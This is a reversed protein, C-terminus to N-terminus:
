ATKWFRETMRGAFFRFFTREVPAPLVQEHEFSLAGMESKPSPAKGNFDIM